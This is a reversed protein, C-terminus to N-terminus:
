IIVAINANICGMKRYNVDHVNIWKALIEKWHPILLCVLINLPRRSKPKISKLKFILSFWRRNWHSLCILVQLIACPTFVILRLFQSHSQNQPTFNLKLFLQVSFKSDSFENYIDLVFKNKPEFGFFAMLNQNLTDWSQWFYMDYYPIM